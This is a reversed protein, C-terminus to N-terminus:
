SESEGPKVISFRKKILAPLVDQIASKTDFFNDEMGEISEWLAEIDADTATESFDLTDLSSVTHTMLQGLIVSGQDPIDDPMLGTQQLSFVFRAIGEHLSVLRNRLAGDEHDAFWNYDSGLRRFRQQAYRAIIPVCFSAGPKRVPVMRGMLADSSQEKQFLADLVYSDVLSETLPLGLHILADDLITEPSTILTMNWSGQAPIDVGTFWLRSEVGYFAMEIKDSWKVFDTVGTAHPSFLQEQGLFFAFSLQDDISSGPGGVELAHLLAAEFNRLWARQLDRNVDAAHQVSLEFIGNAWDSCTAILRDGPAFSSQWYLERVDVASLPFSSPDDYDDLSFLEGNEENDLSLYQPTYEDGFLRYLPYIEDPSVDARVRALSAGKHTFLYEHPLLTPDAFPVLRSGPVFIGTAIEFKEPVIVIPKGTFLGARSLWRSEEGDISPDAYALQNFSLYGSLEERTSVTVPQGLFELLGRLTFPDLETELFDLLKDEVQEKM